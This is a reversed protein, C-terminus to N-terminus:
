RGNARREPMVYGDYGQRRERGPFPIVNSRRDERAQNEHDRRDPGDFELRRRRRDPGFFTRNRVFYRKREIISRIRSYILKASIPKALYETMGHDRAVYIHRLETNATVVIVPVFPDPSRPDRRLKQLLTMGDLGPAWDTLILDAPNSCIAKFAMEPDPTDRVAKVGLESLVRKVINRMSNHKEVVLVDLNRLDYSM